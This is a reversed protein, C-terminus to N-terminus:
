ASLQSPVQGTGTALGLSASLRGTLWSAGLADPQGLLLCLGQFTPVRKWIAQPSRTWSHPVSQRPEGTVSLVVPQSRQVGLGNDTTCSYTGSHEATLTLSFSAGGASPDSSRGLPVDGHYFQYVIRPSGRQAQCHLTVM